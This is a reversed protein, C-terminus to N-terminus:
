GYFVVHNEKAFRGELSLLGMEYLDFSLRVREDRCLERWARVDASTRHIGLCVILAGENGAALCTSVAKAWDEGGAVLMDLGQLEDRQRLAAADRVTEWACRQCGAELYGRTVDLGEGVILGRRSQRFNALRLMLRDDKERLTAGERKERLRRYAYFPAREYVVGTVLGFAYPSHIGYGRRHPLRLLLNWYKRLAYPLPM